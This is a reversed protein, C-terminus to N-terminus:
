NPSPPGSTTTGVSIGYPCLVTIFPKTAPCSTAEIHRRSYFRLDTGDVNENTALVLLGHNPSGQKWSTAAGTVDFEMYGSPQGTFWTVTDQANQDADTGDLALYPQNWNNSTLRQVSTAQNELWDQNVRHVELPRVIDPAQSPTHWSAHASRYFYIHMNARIVRSCQVPINEFQVLFRKKEFDVAKAVLLQDLTNMMNGTGELWVDQTDELRWLIGYGVDVSSLGNVQGYLAILGAILALSLLVSNCAMIRPLLQM